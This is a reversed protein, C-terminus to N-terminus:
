KPTSWDALKFYVPQVNGSPGSLQQMLNPPIVAPNDVYFKTPGQKELV